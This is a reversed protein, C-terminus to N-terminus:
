LGLVYLKLQVAKNLKQNNIVLRNTKSDSYGSPPVLMLASNSFRGEAILANIYDTINYTYRTNEGYLKDIFLNGNAANQGTPKTVDILQQIINNNEDTTYLYLEKPLEFPYNYTGPTPYIILEAKLVKIYPYLEKVTLISPFAIKVFSGFNSHLFARNGMDESPKLQTKFPTFIDYPSGNGTFQLSNFQKNTTFEFDINKEQPVPANEHYYLRLLASKADANFYFLSNTTVAEAKLYIGNFYNVFNDSTQIDTNNNRLKSLLELGLADSLRFTINGEKNPRVTGNFEGLAVPDYSFSRGNYYNDTNSETNVIKENLRYAAMRFPLLTDGYYAGTPNLVVVLSDFFVTKDRAANDAPLNLQAYSSANIIGFSADNVSGISFVSHGSTPFSDIKFTSLSVTYNDLLSINPDGTSTNDTFDIPAKICGACFLVLLPLLSYKKNTSM